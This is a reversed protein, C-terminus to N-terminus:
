ADVNGKIFYTWAPREDKAMMFHDKWLEVIEADMREPTYGLDPFWHWQVALRDIRDLWGKDRLYPILHYEYGETNCIMLDIHEFGAMKLLRDAEGVYGVGQSRSGPGNNIFSAADTHWEGMDLMADEVGLGINYVIANYHGRLREQAEEWAWPQPEFGAINITPYLELLAEMALGRYAGIVVVNSGEPLKFEKILPWRDILESVDDKM